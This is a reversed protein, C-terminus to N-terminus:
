KWGWVITAKGRGEKARTGLRVIMNDKELQYLTSLCGMHSLGQKAAIEGTTLAQGEMISRYRSQCKAKIVPGSKPPIPKKREKRNADFPALLMQAFM